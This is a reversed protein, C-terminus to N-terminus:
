QQPQAAAARDRAEKAATKWHVKKQDGPQESIKPQEIEVPKEPLPKEQLAHRSELEALRRELKQIVEDKKGSDEKIRLEIPDGVEGYKVASNVMRLVDDPSKAIQEIQAIQDISLTFDPNLSSPPKGEPGVLPQGAKDLPVESSGNVGRRWFKLRDANQCHGYGRAELTECM